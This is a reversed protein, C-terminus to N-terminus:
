FKGFFLTTDFFYSKSEGNKLQINLRDYNRTGSHLSGQSELKWDSNIQGYKDIVYNYEAQVGTLSSTTNIIIATEISSGDGGSYLSKDQNQKKFNFLGM